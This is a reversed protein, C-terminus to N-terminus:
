GNYPRHPSCPSPSRAFRVKVVFRLSFWAWCSFWERQLFSLARLCSCTVFHGAYSSMLLFWFVAGLHSTNSAIKRRWIIYIFAGIHSANSANKRKRYIFAGIHSKEREMKPKKLVLNNKPKEASKKITKGWVRTLRTKFNWGVVFLTQRIVPYFLYTTFFYTTFNYSSFGHFCDDSLDLCLM